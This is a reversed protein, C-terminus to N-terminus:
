PQSVLAGSATEAYMAANELNAEVKARLQADTKIDKFFDENLHRLTLKEGALQVRLICHTDSPEGKDGLDTLQAFTADKVPVLFGSYRTPKSEGAEKWEVFYQRNDFNRVILDASKSQGDKDAWTFHWDGCYQVDVKADVAKGLNLTTTYCGAFVLLTVAAVAALAFRKASKM